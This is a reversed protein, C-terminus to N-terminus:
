RKEFRLVVDLDVELKILSTSNNQNQYMQASATKTGQMVHPMQAVVHICGSWPLKGWAGIHVILIIEVSLQISHATGEARHGTRVVLGLFLEFVDFFGCPEVVFWKGEEFERSFYPVLYVFICKDRTQVYDWPRAWDFM